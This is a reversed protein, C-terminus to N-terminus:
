PEHIGEAPQGLALGEESGAADGLGRGVRLEQQRSDKLHVTARELELAQAGQRLLLAQM